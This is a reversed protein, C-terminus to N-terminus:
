LCSRSSGNAALSASSVGAAISVKKKALEPASIVSAETLSALCTVLRGFMMTNLPLKWPRVWMAIAIVVDLVAYRAPCAGSGEPTNTAGNGSGSAASLVGLDGAGEGPKSWRSFVIVAGSSVAATIRSGTSPSPPYMGAGCANMVPQDLTAPPVADQEDGVLHLAPETAGALHERDLM